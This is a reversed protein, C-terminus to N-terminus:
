ETAFILSKSLQFHFPDGINNKLSYDCNYCKLWSIFPEGIWNVSNPQRYVVLSHVGCCLCERLDFFDVNHKESRAFREAREIPANYYPELYSPNNSILYFASRGMEKLHGLKLLKHSLEDHKAINTFDSFHFKIALFENMLNIRTKTQLYPPFYGNLHEREAELIDKVLPIIRQSILYEFSYINPLTSGNHMIRNRWRSLIDLSKSHEPKKIFEFTQLHTLYIESDKSYYEFAQRFRRISESYEITNVEDPNLKGELFQFIDRQKELIKVALFENIRKLKDKILLEIFRHFGLISFNIYQESGSFNYGLSERPWKIHNPMALHLSDKLEKFTLFYYSFAEHLSSYYIPPNVTYDRGILVIQNKFFDDLKEDSNSRKKPAM